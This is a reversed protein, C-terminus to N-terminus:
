KQATLMSIEVKWLYVSRPPFCVFILAKWAFVEFGKDSVIYLCPFDTEFCLTASEVRSRGRSGNLGACNSITKM